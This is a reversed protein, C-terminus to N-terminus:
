ELDMKVHDFYFNKMLKVNHLACATKYQGNHNTCVTVIKKQKPQDDNEHPYGLEHIDVVNFRFRKLWEKRQEGRVYVRVADHLGERLIKGVDAYPVKGSKWRLGHYCRELWTNERKYKDTLRRWNYPEQFLIVVPASWVEDSSEVLPQIALEKIVPENVPQKFGQMDVVYEMKYIDKRKPQRSFVSNTVM